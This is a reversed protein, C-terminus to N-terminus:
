RDSSRGDEQRRRSGKVAQEKGEDEEKKGGGSHVRKARDGSCTGLDKSRGVNGQTEGLDGESCDDKSGSGEVM